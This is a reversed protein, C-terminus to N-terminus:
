RKNLYERICFDCIDQEEREFGDELFRLFEQNSRLRRIGKMLSEDDEPDFLDPTIKLQQESGCPVRIGNYSNVRVFFSDILDVESPCKTQTFPKYFFEQTRGDYFMYMELKVYHRKDDLSFESFLLEEDETIENFKRFVDRVREYIFLEDVLLDYVASIPVITEIGAHILISLTDLAREISIPKENISPDNHSLDMSVVAYKLGKERLDEWYDPDNKWGNTNIRIEMGKSNAYGVVDSLYPVLTPEGGTLLFYDLDNSLAQDIIRESLGLSMFDSESPNEPLYSDVDCNPCATNCAYTLELVLKRRKRGIIRDFDQKIM